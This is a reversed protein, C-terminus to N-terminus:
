ASGIDTSIRDEADQREYGQLWFQFWDVAGQQSSYREQPKQLVHQGHPIEVLQGAQRTAALHFVNGM